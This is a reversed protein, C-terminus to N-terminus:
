RDWRPTSRRRGRPLVLNLVRNEGPGSGGAIESPRATCYKWIQRQLKSGEAPAPGRFSARRDHALQFCSPMSVPFAITEIAAEQHRLRVRAVRAGPRRAGPFVAAALTAACSDVVVDAATRPPRALTPSLPM